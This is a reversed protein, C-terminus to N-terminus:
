RGTWRVPQFEGPGSEPEVIRVEVSLGRAAEVTTVAHEVLAQTVMADSPPKHASLRLTTFGDVTFVGSEEVFWGGTPTTVVVDYVSERRAASVKVGGVSLPSAGNNRQAARQTSCGQAVLVTGGLGLCGMLLAVRTYRYGM